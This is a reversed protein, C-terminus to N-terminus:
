AWASSSAVPRIGQAHAYSRIRGDGASVAAWRSCMSFSKRRTESRASSTGVNWCSLLWWVQILAAMADTPKQRLSVLRMASLM